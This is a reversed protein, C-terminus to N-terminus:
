LCCHKRSVIRITDNPIGHDFSVSGTLNQEGNSTMPDCNCQQHDQAPSRTISPPRDQEDRESLAQGSKGFDALFSINSWRSTNTDSNRALATRLANTSQVSVSPIQPGERVIAADAQSTHIPLKVTVHPTQAAGASTPTTKYGCSPHVNNRQKLHEGKQILNRGAKVFRHEEDAWIVRGPKRGGSRHRLTM